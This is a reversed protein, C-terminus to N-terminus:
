IKERCPEGVGTRYRRPLHVTCGSHTALSPTPLVTPLLPEITDPPGPTMHPQSSCLTTWKRLSHQSSGTSLSQIVVGMRSSPLSSTMAKSSWSHATTPDNCCLKSQMTGLTFMHLKNYHVRYMIHICVTTKHPFVVNSTGQIRFIFILSAWFNSEFQRGRDSMISRPLGFRSKWGHLLARACSEATMDVMPIAETWRSYHYICTFLYSFGQFPPLPGVIDVYIEAFRHDPIDFKQLPATTHRHIKSQQCTRTWRRVDRNLGNWVFRASVLKCTSRAGPHSLNHILNFIEHRFSEPLINGQSSDCLLTLNDDGDLLVDVLKLNTVGAKLCQTQKLWQGFTLKPIPPPM